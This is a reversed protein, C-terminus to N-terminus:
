KKRLEPIKFEQGVKVLDPRKLDNLKIIYVNMEVGGLYKRSLKSITEGSQLVHVCKVGVIEYDGSKVQPYDSPNGVVPKTSDSQATMEVPTNNRKGSSRKPKTEQAPAEALPTKAEETQPASVGASGGANEVPPTVTAAPKPKPAPKSPKEKTKETTEKQQPGVYIKDCKCVFLHSSGLWYSIMLLLMFLVTRAVIKWTRRDAKKDPLDAPEDEPTSDESSESVKENDNAKVAAEEVGEEEEVIEEAPTEHEEVSVEETPINEETRIEEEDPEEEAETEEELSKKESVVEEETSQEELVSDTNEEATIEEESADDEVAPATESVAAEVEEVPADHEDSADEEIKVEASEQEDAQVEVVEQEDEKQSEVAEAPHAEIAEAEGEQVETAESGSEGSTVDATADSDTEVPLNNDEVFMDAGADADESEDEVQPEVYEMEALDVGDNLIITEFDAFPRNVHDRLASDPTFTIKSHGQIHFREGTNVNISDRGSVEIVKFTGLGKIKVIKDEQLYQEIVAFFARVFNDGERKALGSRHCVGNALDQLLIKSDM